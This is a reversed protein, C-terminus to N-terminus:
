SFSCLRRAIPTDINAVPKELETLAALNTAFPRSFGHWISRSLPCVWFLGIPPMELALADVVAKNLERNM